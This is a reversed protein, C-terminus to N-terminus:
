RWFLRELETLITPEAWEKSVIWPGEYIETHGEIVYSDAYPQSKVKWITGSVTINYPAGEKMVIFEPKM